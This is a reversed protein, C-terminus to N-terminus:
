LPRAMRVGRGSRTKVEGLAQFGCKEYFGLARVNAVLDLSVAGRARALGLGHEALRRGVGEGWRDPTVFLGDLQAHGDDRPLVVAFGLVAGTEEFVFVHGEVIQDAPLDIVDPHALLFPRDEEWMLSARRKLAILLGREDPRAARIV